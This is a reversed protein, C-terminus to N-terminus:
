RWPRKSFLGCYIFLIVIEPGSSSPVYTTSNWVDV